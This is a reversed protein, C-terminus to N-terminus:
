ILSFCKTQDAVSFDFKLLSFMNSKTYKEYFHNVCDKNLNCLM